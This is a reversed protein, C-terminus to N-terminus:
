HFVCTCGLLEVFWFHGNNCANLCAECPAVVHYGCVNGCGECAIDRIRCQCNQTRYDDAVLQVGRPVADTSFLEVRTDALLIARMGRKTMTRSCCRCRLTCVTKNMFSPHSAPAAGNM